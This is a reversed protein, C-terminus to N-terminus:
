ADLGAPDDDASDDEGSDPLSVWVNGTWGGSAHPPPVTRVFPIEDDGRRGVVRTIGWRRALLREHLAFAIQNEGPTNPHREAVPEGSGHRWEFLRWGWRALTALSVRRDLLTALRADPDPDRARRTALRLPWRRPAERASWRGHGLSRAAGGSVALRVDPEPDVALCVAVLPPLDDRTALAWRVAPQRDRLFRAVLDDPLGPRTALGARVRRSRDRSAARLQEATWRGHRALAARVWTPPRRRGPRSFHALIRAATGEDDRPVTGAAVLASWSAGDALTEFIADPTRPHSLVLVRGTELTFDVRRDRAELIREAWWAAADAVTGVDLGPNAWASACMSSLGTRLGSAVLEAPASACGALRTLGLGVVADPLPEGLVQRNAPWGASFGPNRAVREPEVLAARVLDVWPAAPDSAVAIPDRGRYGAPPVVSWPDRPWLAGGDPGFSVIIAAVRDPPHPAAPETSAAHWVGRPTAYAATGARGTPTKWPAEAGRTVPPSREGPLSITEHRDYRV